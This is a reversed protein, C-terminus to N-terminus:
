QTTILALMLAFLVGVVLGMAAWALARDRKRILRIRPAATVFNRPDNPNLM